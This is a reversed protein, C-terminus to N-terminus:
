LLEAFIEGDTYYKDTKIKNKIMYLESYIPVIRINDEVKKGDISIVNVNCWRIDNPSQSFHEDIYEKIKFIMYQHPDETRKVYTGEKPFM